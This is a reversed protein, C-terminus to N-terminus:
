GSFDRHQGKTTWKEGVELEKVWMKRMEIIKNKGSHTLAFDYIIDIKPKSMQPKKLENVNWLM